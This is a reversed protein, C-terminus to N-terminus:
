LKAVFYVLVEIVTARICYRYEEYSSDYWDDRLYNSNELFQSEKALNSADRTIGSSTRSFSFM